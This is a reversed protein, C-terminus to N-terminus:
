PRDGDASLPNVLPTGLGKSRSRTSPEASSHLPHLDDCLPGLLEDKAGLERHSVALSM